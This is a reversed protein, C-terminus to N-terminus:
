HPPLNNKREGLDEGTKKKMASFAIFGIIGVVVIIFVVPLM